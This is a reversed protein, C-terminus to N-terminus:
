NKPHLKCSYNALLNIQYETLNYDKSISDAYDNICQRIMPKDGRFQVKMYEANARLMTKCEQYKSITKM